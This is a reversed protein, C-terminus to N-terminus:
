LRKRAIDLRSKTRLDIESISYWGPYSQAVLKEISTTKATKLISGSFFQYGMGREFVCIAHGKKESGEEYAVSIVKSQIGIESLFAQALFAYDECDGSRKSLTEHPSQFYNEGFHEKEYHINKGMWDELDEPTKINSRVIRALDLYEALERERTESQVIIQRMQEKDALNTTAYAEKARILLEKYQHLAEESRSSRDLEAAQKFAQSVEDCKRRYFEQGATLGSSLPAQPAIVAPIVPMYESEEVPEGIIYDGNKYIKEGDPFKMKIRYSFLDSHRNPTSGDLEKPAYIHLMEGGCARGGAM